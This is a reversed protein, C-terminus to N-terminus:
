DLAVRFLPGAVVQPGSHAKELPSLHCYGKIMLIIWSLVVILLCAYTVPMM